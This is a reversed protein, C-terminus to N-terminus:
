QSAAIAFGLIVALICVTIRRLYTIPQLCCSQMWFQPWVAASLSAAVIYLRCTSTMARDLPVM